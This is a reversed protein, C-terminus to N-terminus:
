TAIIQEFTPLNATGIVGSRTCLWEIVSSEPDLEILRTGKRITLNDPLSDLPTGTTYGTEEYDYSCIIENESTITSNKSVTITTGTINTIYTGHPFSRCSIRNGTIYNAKHLVNTIQNSNATVDGIIPFKLLQGYKILIPYDGTVLGDVIGDMTVVDDVISEVQGIHNAQVDAGFQDTIKAISFVPDNVAIIGAMGADSADFTARGSALTIAATGTQAGSRIGPSLIKHKVVASKPVGYQNTGSNLLVEDGLGVGISEISSAYEVNVMITKPPTRYLSNTLWTEDGYGALNGSTSGELSPMNMICNEFEVLNVNFEPADEVKIKLPFSPKNNYHLISSNTFKVRNSGLAYLVWPQLLLSGTQPYPEGFHLSSNNILSNVHVTGIRYFSEAFINDVRLFSNYGRNLMHFIEFVNGAISLDEIIPADGIQLGYLCNTFCTRVSEWIKWNSIKINREQSNCTAYGVKLNSLWFGDFVHSENNQTVGNPSLLVGVTFGNITIGEFRCDTSGSGVTVGTYYDEFGPYQNGETVNSHFPELVIAAFPSYRNDRSDATLYSTAASWAQLHSYSLVNLGKLAFNRFSCTKLLHGGIAFNDVHTCNLVTESNNTAQTKKDGFFDVTVQEAYNGNGDRDAIFLLGKAINYTGRPLYVSPLYNKIATDIAKQIAPQNDVASTNAGFWCGSFWGNKTGEPNVTLTTAFIHQFPSADIIGGNITGSGTIRGGPKFRLVEGAPITVTGEIEWVSGVEMEYVTGRQFQANVYTTNDAM